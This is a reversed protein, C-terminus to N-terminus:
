LTDFQCFNYDWCVVVQRVGEFCCLDWTETGHFISSVNQEVGAFCSMVCNFYKLPCSLAPLCLIPCNPLQNKSHLSCFFGM